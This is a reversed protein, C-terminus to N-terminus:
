VAEDNKPNKPKQLLELIEKLSITRYAQFLYKKGDYNHCTGEFYSSHSKCWEIIEEKPISNKKFQLFEKSVRMFERAFQKAEKDKEELQQKLSSIRFESYCECCIYGKTGSLIPTHKIRGCKECKNVLIHCKKIQEEECKELESKLSQYDKEIRELLVIVFDINPKGEQLEAQVNEIDIEFQSPEGLVKSSNPHREVSKTGIKKANPPVAVKDGNGKSDLRSHNNKQMNKLFEKAAKGKLIPTAKNYFNIKIKKTQKM